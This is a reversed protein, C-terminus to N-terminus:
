FIFRVGVQGGIGWDYPEAIVIGPRGEVFLEVPADFRFNMGIPIVLAVATDDSRHQFAVAVGLGVYFVGSVSSDNGFRLLGFEYEAFVGIRDSFRQLGLGFDFGSGRGTWIKLDLATPDGFGVGLSVPSARRGGTREALAVTSSGLCAAFALSSALTTRM